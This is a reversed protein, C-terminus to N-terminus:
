SRTGPQSPMVASWWNVTTGGGVSRGQLITIALDDTTRNGLEQYLNPYATSEKLDFERRTHHGGEELMVVRLGRSVLEHALVSGGAGSGVVCVDCAVEEGGRIEDSVYIRGETM